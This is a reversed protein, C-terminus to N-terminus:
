LLERLTKTTTNKFADSNASEAPTWGKLTRMTQLKHTMIRPKTNGVDIAVWMVAHDSRYAPRGLGWRQCTDRDGLIFDIHSRGGGHGWWTHHGRGKERREEVGASGGAVSTAQESEEGLQSAKNFGFTTCADINNDLCIRMWMEHKAAWEDAAKGRRPRRREVAAGTVGAVDDSMLPINFDSAIVVRRRFRGRGRHCRVISEIQKLATEYEELDYGSDPLYATM